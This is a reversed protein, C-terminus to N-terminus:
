KCKKMIRVINEQIFNIEQILTHLFYFIPISNFDLSNEDFKNDNIIYLM